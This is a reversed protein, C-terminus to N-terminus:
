LTASNQAKKQSKFFTWISKQAEVRLVLECGEMVMYLRIVNFIMKKCVKLGPFVRQNKPEEFIYFVNYFISVEM